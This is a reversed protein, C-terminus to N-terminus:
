GASYDLNLHPGSSIGTSTVNEIVDGKKVRSEQAKFGKLYFWKFQTGDSLIVEATNGDGGNNLPWKLSSNTVIPMANQNFGNSGLVLVVALACAPMALTSPNKGLFFSNMREKVGSYLNHIAKSYCFAFCIFEVGVFIFVVTVAFNGLGLCIIFFHLLTLKKFGLIAVSM